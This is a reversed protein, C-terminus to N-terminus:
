PQLRKVEVWGGEHEFSEAGSDSRELRVWQLNDGHKQRQGDLFAELAAIAVSEASAPCPHPKTVITAEGVTAPTVYNATFRWTAM